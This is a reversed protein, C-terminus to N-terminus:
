WRASRYFEDARPVDWDGQRIWDCLEVLQASGAIPGVWHAPGVPSRDPWCPQLMVVAGGGRRVQCHPGLLCPTSVLMGGASDRVVAGLADLVSTDAAGCGACVVVTFPATM